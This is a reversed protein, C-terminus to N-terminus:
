LDSPPPTPFIPVEALELKHADALGTPQLEVEVLFPLYLDKKFHLAYRVLYQETM